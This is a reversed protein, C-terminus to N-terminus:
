ADTGRIDNLWSDPNIASIWSSAKKRLQTLYARDLREQSDIMEVYQFSARDLEGTAMNQKGIVRIGFSRYLINEKWGALVEQPTQVIFTGQDQVSVHINARDKGGANTVKGYFYLEVEVWVDDTRQYTSERSIVVKESNPLSTQFTFSWGKRIAEEQLAEIALASRVELFDISEQLHVQGLVANFAIVAQMSTTFLHRVSGEEVRYGIIPRDKRDTPFLLDEVRNLLLQLDRIDYSEPTLHIMGHQGEVRIEITGTKEV